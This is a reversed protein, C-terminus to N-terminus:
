PNGSSSCSYRRWLWLALVKTDTPFAEIKPGFGLHSHKLQPILNQADSLVSSAQVRRSPGPEWFGGKPFEECFGTADCKSSRRTLKQDVRFFTSPLVFTADEGGNWGRLTRRPVSLASIHQRGKAMRAEVLKKKTKASNQNRM